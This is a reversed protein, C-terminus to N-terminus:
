SILLAPALQDSVIGSFGAQFARGYFFLLGCAAFLPCFVLFLLFIEIGYVQPHNAAFACYRGCIV